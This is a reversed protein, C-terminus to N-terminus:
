RATSVRIIDTTAANGCSYSNSTAVYRAVTPAKTTPQNQNATELKM